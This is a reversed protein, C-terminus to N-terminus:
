NDEIEFSGDGNFNTSIVTVKWTGAKGEESIGEYSDINSSGTLNQNLVEKGKKDNLIFQVNGTSGSTIDFKLKAKNSLNVWAFSFTGSDNNGTFDADPESDGSIDDINGTYTNEIIETNGFQEYKSCSVILTFSLLFLLAKKITIKKLISM